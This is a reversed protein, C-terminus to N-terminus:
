RGDTVNLVLYTPILATGASVNFGVWEGGDVWADAVTLELPIGAAVTAAASAVITGSIAPTGVDTMTYLASTITGSGCVFAELVTVGGGIADDPCKWVLFTGAATTSVHSSIQKAFTAM